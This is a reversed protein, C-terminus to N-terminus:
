EQHLSDGKGIYQGGGREVQSVELRIKPDIM